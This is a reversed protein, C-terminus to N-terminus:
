HANKDNEGLFELLQPKLSTLYSSIKRIYPRKIEPNKGHGCNYSISHFERIEDHFVQKHGPTKCEKIRCGITELLQGLEKCNFVHDSDDLLQLVADLKGVKTM